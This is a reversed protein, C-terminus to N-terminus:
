QATPTSDLILNKAYNEYIEMCEIESLRRGSNEQRHIEDLAKREFDDM